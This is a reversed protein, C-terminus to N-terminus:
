VVLLLILHSLKKAFYLEFNPLFEDTRCLTLKKTCNLNSTLLLNGPAMESSSIIDNIETSLMMMMMMMMM